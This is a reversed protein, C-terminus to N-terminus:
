KRKFINLKDLANGVADNTSTLVNILNNTPKSVTGSVTFEPGKFYGAMPSESKAYGLSQFLGRTSSAVYINVPIDLKQQAFDVTPDFLVRGGKSSLVLSDTKMEVSDFNFNFDADNRSIKIEAETYKMETMLSVLEGIGGLEKVKGGLLQGAISLANGAIAAAAGADSNKDLIRITGGSKSKIEANGTIYKALHEANNGSGKLEIAADFVGSMPPKTKDAFIESVELNSMALKTASLEYPIERKADFSVAAAGAFDAGFARLSLKSVELKSDTASAKADLKELVTKGGFVAKGVKASATLNKGFNWFAKADKKALSDAKKSESVAALAPKEIRQSKGAEPQKEIYNPNKFAGALLAIDDVVISPADADLSIGAGLSLKASAKTEGLTSKISLKADINEADGSLKAVVSDAANRATCTAISHAAIEASFGGNKYAGRIDATGRSINSYKLLAPQNFLPALAVTADIEASPASKATDYEAKAGLTCFPTENEGIVCKPIEVRATKGDFSGRASTSVSLGRALFKGGKKYSLAAVSVGADFAYVNKKPMSIEALLSAKAADIEPAFPKVLSFPFAPASIKALAASAASVEGSKTDYSIKSLTSIDAAKKGNAGFIGIALSELTATGGAYALATEGDIKLGLSEMSSISRIHAVIANLSGGIKIKAKAAGNAYEADASIGLKDTKSDAVELAIKATSTKGIFADANAFINLNEAVTEGGRKIYARTLSLPAASKVVAGGNAFSVAFKGRIDDSALEIGKAFANVLRAPLALTAEIEAKALEEQSKAEFPKASLGLLPTGSESVNVEFKKVSVAEGNKSATIRVDAGVAGLPKLAESIKALESAKADGIIEASFNAADAKAHAYLAVEFEPLALSPPAFKAAIKSNADIRAEAELASYDANADASLQVIKKGDASLLAAIKRAGNKTEAAAALEADKTKVAIRGCKPKLNKELEVNKASAEFKMGDIEADGAFEGIEVTWPFEFKKATADKKEAARTKTEANASKADATKQTEAPLAAQANKSERTTSVKLGAIKASDIKINRSLLALPSFEIEIKKASIQEGFKLGDIEASTPSIKAREVSLEPSISNAIKTQLTASFLAACISAVAAAVLAACIILLKKATKM